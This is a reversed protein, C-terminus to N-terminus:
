DSDLQATDRYRTRSDIPPLQKLCLLSMEWRDREWRDGHRSLVGDESPQPLNKKKPRQWALHTSPNDCLAQFRTSENPLFRKIEHLFKIVHWLRPYCCRIEM